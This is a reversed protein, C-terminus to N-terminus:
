GPVEDARLATGWLPQSLGPNFPAFILVTQSVGSLLTADPKWGTDPEARKFIPATM